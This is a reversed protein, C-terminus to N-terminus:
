LLSPPTASKVISALAPPSKTSATPPELSAPVDDPLRPVTTPQRLVDLAAVLPLPSSHHTAGRTAQVPSELSSGAVASRAPSTWAPGATAGDACVSMAVPLACPRPSPPARSDHQPYQSNPYEHMRAAHRRDRRSCWAPHGDGLLQQRKPRTVIGDSVGDDAAQKQAIYDFNISDCTLQGHLADADALASSLLLASQSSTRVASLQAAHNLFPDVPAAPFSFPPRRQRLRGPPAPFRVHLM